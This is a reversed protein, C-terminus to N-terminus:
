EHHGMITYGSRRCLEDRKAEELDCAVMEAIMEEFTILPEWGLKQKAKKPDGLLTEVETPRFYRPDIVVLPTGPKLSQNEVQSSISKVVGIEDIDEGQWELEIGAEAFARNCLDKSFNSAQPSLSIM